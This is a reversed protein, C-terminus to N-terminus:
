RREQAERVYKGVTDICVLWDAAVQKRGRGAAVAAVIQARAEADLTELRGREINRANQAYRKPERAAVRYATVLQARKVPDSWRQRMAESRTM